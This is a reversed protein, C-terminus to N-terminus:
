VDLMVLPAPDALADIAIRDTSLTEASTCGSPVCSFWFQSQSVHVEMAACSPRSGNGESLPRAFDTWRGPNAALAGAIDESGPVNDLEDIDGLHVGYFFFAIEHCDLRKLEEALTRIRAALEAGVSLACVEPSSPAMESPSSLSLLLFKTM